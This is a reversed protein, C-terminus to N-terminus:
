KTLEEYREVWYAAKAAYDADNDAYAAAFAATCADYNDDNDYASVANAELEQQTVSAPDALWKKVLVIHKNM